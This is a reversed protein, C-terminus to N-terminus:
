GHRREKTRLADLAARVRGSAGAAEQDFALSRVERRRGAWEGAAGDLAALIGRELEEQTRAKPGPTMADYDFLLERENRLYEDLDYPFFVVPRDLLLYDFYISSYDTVLLDAQALLPYVDGTAAYEIVRELRPVAGGGSLIPHLKVVICLRNRHCFEDLKRYDLIGGDVPNRGAARFTPAFLVVRAGARRQERVRGIATADTNLGALADPAGPLLAENRPYGCEIVRGAHFSGRFAARSMHASTSVLLDYAPFRTFFALYLGYCFRRVADMRGLRAGLEILEIAKLPVGHWLQVKKAGSLLQFRGSRVWEVSDAVVTGARLLMWFARLSPYRLAPAGREALAACTARDESLFWVAHRGGNRMARLADIYFYKANDTFQGDGRGIVVVIRPDRPFMRGLPYFAAWAAAAIPLERVQRLLHRGSRGPSTRAPGSM